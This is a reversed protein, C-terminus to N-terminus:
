EVGLDIIVIWKAPNKLHINSVRVFEFPLTWVLFNYISDLVAVETKTTEGNSIM